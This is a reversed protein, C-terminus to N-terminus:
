PNKKTANEIAELHDSVVTLKGNKEFVFPKRELPFFKRGDQDKIAVVSGKERIISEESILNSYNQRMYKQHLKKPASAIEKGEFQAAAFDDNEQSFSTSHELSFDEFPVDQSKNM